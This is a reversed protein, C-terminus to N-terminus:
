RRLLWPDISNNKLFIITEECRTKTMEIFKDYIDVGIFSRGMKLAVEGTTGSGVFPDLVVGPQKQKHKCMQWGITMPKRPIYQQGTDQRGSSKKNEFIEVRNHKQGDVSNYKGFVRKSSRGEDYEVKEIIRTEINGCVPCVRMPCTMAIPRECIALPYVAYHKKQTQGMDVRWVNHLNRGEISTTVRMLSEPLHRTKRPRGRTKKEQRPIAIAYTDTWAQKTRAFRYIFEHGNSNLRNTAPETMCGGITQGNDLDVIKAWVVKDLLIWGREIMIMSFLEPVCMLGGDKGRKDGLNVWVSGKEHLPIKDFIDALANCYAEPTGEQGIEQSSDGYRKINFYPPSTVVSNVIDTIEEVSKYLKCSGIM